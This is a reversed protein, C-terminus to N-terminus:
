GLLIIFNLTKDGGSRPRLGGVPAPLVLMAGSAQLHLQGNRVLPLPLWKIEIWMYATLQIQEDTDQARSINWDPSVEQTSEDRWCNVVM